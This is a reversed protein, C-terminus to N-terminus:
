AAPGNKAAALDVQEAADMLARAIRRATHTDFWIAAINDNQNDWTQKIQFTVPTPGADTWGVTLDTEEIIFTTMEACGLEAAMDVTKSLRIDERNRCRRAVTIFWGAALLAGTGAAITIATNTGTNPLTSPSSAPAVASPPETVAPTNLRDIENLLHETLASLQQWNHIINPTDYNGSLLLRSRIEDTNIKTSM